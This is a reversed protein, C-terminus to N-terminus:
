PRRISYGLYCSGWFPGGLVGIGSGTFGPAPEGITRDWWQQDFFLNV